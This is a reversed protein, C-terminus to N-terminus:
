RPPAVTKPRLTVAAEIFTSISPLMENTMLEYAENGLGYPDTVDNLLPDSVTAAHRGRDADAVVQTWSAGRYSELPMRELIRAFERLTFTRKLASPAVALVEPRHAAALVLVLHARAVHDETLQRARFHDLSAGLLNAVDRSGPQAPKGAHAFTGASSVSFYGPSAEDLGAQLVAEALPSRCINGTCVVLVRFTDANLDSAELSRDVHNM